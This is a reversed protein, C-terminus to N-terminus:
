FVVAIFLLNFFQPFLIRSRSFTADLIGNGNKDNISIKTKRTVVSEAMLRTSEHSRIMRMVETIILFAATAVTAEM